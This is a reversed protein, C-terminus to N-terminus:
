CSLTRVQSVVETVLTHYLPAALAAPCLRVVCSDSGPDHAPQIALLSDWLFDLGALLGASPSSPLGSFRLSTGM